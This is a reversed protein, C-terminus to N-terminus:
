EEKVAYPKTVILLVLYVLTLFGQTLSQFIPYDYLVVLFVISFIRRLVVVVLFPKAPKKRSAIFGEFLIEYKKMMRQLLKKSPEIKMRHYVILDIALIILFAALLVFCFMRSIIKFTSNWDAHALQLVLSLLLVLSSAILIKFALNLGLNEKVKKAMRSVSGEMSILMMSIVHIIGLILFFLIFQGTNKLFLGDFGNVMFRFPCEVTESKYDDIIWAFPNPIFKMTGVKFLKLFVDLNRPYQINLFLLCFLAQIISQQQLFPSSGGGAVMSTASVGLITATAIESTITIIRATETVSPSYYAIRQHLFSINGISINGSLGKFLCNPNLFTINVLASKQHQCPPPL